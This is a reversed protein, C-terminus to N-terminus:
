ICMVNIRKRHIIDMCDHSMTKLVVDHKSKNTVRSSLVLYWTSGTRRIPWHKNNYLIDILDHSKRMNHGKQAAMNTLGTGPVITVASNPVGLTLAETNANDSM